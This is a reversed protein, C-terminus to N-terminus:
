ACWREFDAAALRDVEAVVWDPCFRRILALHLEDENAHQAEDDNDSIILDVFETLSTENIDNPNM